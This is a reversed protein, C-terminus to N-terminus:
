LKAKKIDTYRAIKQYDFQDFAKAFNERKHLIIQWSLGAQFTDLVIAQFIKADSREPKGWETDHYKIMLQNEKPWACRKIKINNKIM